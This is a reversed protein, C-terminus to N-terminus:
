RQQLFKATWTSVCLDRLVSSPDSRDRVDRMWLPNPGWDKMTRGPMTRGPPLAVVAVDPLQPARFARSGEEQLCSAKPVRPQNPAPSYDCTSDNCSLLPLSIYNSLIVASGCEQQGEQGQLSAASLQSISAWALPLQWCAALARQKPQLRSHDMVDMWM